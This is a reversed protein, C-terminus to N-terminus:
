PVFPPMPCNMTDAFARVLEAERSRVAGDSAVTQVCAGLFLKKIRPTAVSLENLATEVSTLTCESLTLLRFNAAEEKLNSIGRRFAAQVDKAPDQGAHALASLLTSAAAAVATLSTHRTEPEPVPNFNPELHRRLMKQLAFEFLDV